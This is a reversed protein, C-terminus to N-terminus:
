HQSTQRNNEDLRTCFTIIILGAPEGLRARGSKVHGAHREDRDKADDDVDIQHQAEVGEGEGPERDPHDDTLRPALPCPNDWTAFHIAKAM